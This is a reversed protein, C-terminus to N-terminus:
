LHPLTVALVVGVGLVGLTNLTGIVEARKSVPTEMGDTMM